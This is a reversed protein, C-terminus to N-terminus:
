RLREKVTSAQQPWHNQERHITRINFNPFTTKLFNSLAMTLAVSRHQGGTCGVGINIRTKGQRQYLPLTQALLNQWHKMFEHTEPFQFIYDIVPQDLGTQPRLSEEYFPNPLFRMDFIMEADTPVGNKFGFSTLTVSMPEVGLDLNLIKAIKLELERNNTTSTDIHYDSFSKLAKYLSQEREIVDRIGTKDYPHQKEAAAYRQILVETPCSLYLRKLNPHNQSLATFLTAAEGPSVEYPDLAPSIALPQNESESVSLIRELSDPSVGAVTMFYLQRFAKLATHLGTGSPGYVLFSPFPGQEVAM